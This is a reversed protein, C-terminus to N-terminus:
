VVEWFYCLKAQKPLKDSVGFEPDYYKGKYYLSWHGYGPLRLSLICCDPLPIGPTYKLRTKTTTKLGYWKLADRIMSISTGKDTQMIDIVNDVSVGALMAIVSQGCLYGTPEKIYEISNIRRIPKDYSYPSIKVSLVYNYPNKEDAQLNNDKFYDEQTYRYQNYPRNKMKYVTHFRMGCHKLVIGAAPNDQFQNACLWSTKIGVFAFHLVKKTSETCYENNWYDPM